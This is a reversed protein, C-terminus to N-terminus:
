PRPPTRWALARGTRTASRGLLPDIVPTLVALVAREVVRDRVAPVHLTRMRGDPRPITVPTLRGPEYSGSLLEAAIRALYEEADEAFRTVGAGLVGDDRDSALLDAWAALRGPDAVQSLLAAPRVPAAPM